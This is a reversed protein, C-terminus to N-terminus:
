PSVGLRSNDYERFMENSFSWRSGWYLVAGAGISRYVFIAGPNRNSGYRYRGRQFRTGHASHCGASPFITIGFDDSTRFTCGGDYCVRGTFNFTDSQISLNLLPQYPNKHNERDNVLMDDSPQIERYLQGINAGLVRDGGYKLIILIKGGGEVYERVAQNEASNFCGEPAGILLGAYRRLEERLTLRSDILECAVGARSLFEFFLDFNKPRDPRISEGHITSIGLKM